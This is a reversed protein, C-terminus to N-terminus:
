IASKRVLTSMLAQLIDIPLDEAEYTVLEALDKWNKDSLLDEDEDTAELFSLLAGLININDM